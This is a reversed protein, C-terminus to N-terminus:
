TVGRHDRELLRCGLEAELGNMMQTVASQTCHLVEATRRLSGTQTATLFAKLKREEM